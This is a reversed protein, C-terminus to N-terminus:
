ATARWDQLERPSVKGMKRYRVVGDGGFVITFPLGGATNGLAKSLAAGEMGSLAVPFSVPTKLLFDQVSAAKDVALGLVQWGNSSNERYFADLLPFEEVCPPCWTAWFNLLLPRGKFSAMALVEGAVTDFGTQWLRNVAEDTVDDLAYKRWALGGGAIAAAAAVGALLWNRRTVAGLDAAGASGPEIENSMRRIM